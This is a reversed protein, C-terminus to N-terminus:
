RIIGRQSSRISDVFPQLIAKNDDVADLERLAEELKLGKRYVTKYARNIVAIQEKSFGRREMGVKNITRPVAPHGAAMVYAPLDQNLYAGAGLFAHSGISVYQHILTYGSLFAWDGVKIHGSISANNVLITNNGVVCDHGIHVYAMFLNDSGILTRGNGDDTGRNLTVFERIVNNDGIELTTKEGRYKKDQPAEGISSFQYIQNGVGIKCPGNVVVHPGIRSGAGIEVDAGIISYAGVEVDVALRAKADVIATAHIM